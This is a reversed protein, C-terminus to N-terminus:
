RNTSGVDCSGRRVQGSKQGAVVFDASQDDPIPRQLRPDYWFTERSVKQYSQCDPCFYMGWAFRPNPGLVIDPYFKTKAPRKKPFHSQPSQSLLPGMSQITQRFRSKVHWVGGCSM